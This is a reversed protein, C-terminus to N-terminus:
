KKGGGLNADWDVQGEGAVLAAALGGWGVAELAETATLAEALGRLLQLKEAARHLAAGDVARGGGSLGLEAVLARGPLGLLRGLAACEAEVEGALGASLRALAGEQAAEAMAAALLADEEDNRAMAAAGDEGDGGGGGGGKRGGGRRAKGGGGRVGAGGGGRQQQQQQQKGAARKAAAVAASAAAAEAAAREAADAEAVAAEAAAADAAAGAAAAAAAATAAAAAAAARVAARREAEALLAGHAGLVEVRCLEKAAREAEALTPRKTALPVRCVRADGRALVRGDFVHGVTTAAASIFVRRCRGVAAVWPASRLLEHIDERLAAENARRIQAGISHAPRGAAADHASQSGGQKRRTTYRAFRKHLLTRPWGGGGGGGGGGISGEDEAAPRCQVVVAAFYGGRYLCLLWTEGPAILDDVSDVEGEACLADSDGGPPPAAPPLARLLARVVAVCEGSRRVRLLARPTRPGAGLWHRVEEAAASAHAEAAACSADSDTSGSSGGSDSDSTAGGGHEERWHLRLESASAFDLACRLCRTSPQVEAAM